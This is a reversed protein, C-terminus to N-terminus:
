DTKIPHFGKTGSSSPLRKFIDAREDTARGVDLRPGLRFCLQRKQDGDGAISKLYLLFVSQYHKGTREGRSARFGDFFLREGLFGASWSNCFLELDAEAVGCLGITFINSSLQLAPIEPFRNFYL